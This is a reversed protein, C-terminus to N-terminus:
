VALWGTLYKLEFDKNKSLLAVYFGGSNQDHTLIKMFHYLGLNKLSVILLKKKRM